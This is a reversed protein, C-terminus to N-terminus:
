LAKQKMYIHYNGAGRNDAYVKDNKYSLLPTSTTPSTALVAASNCQLEAAIVLYKKGRRSIILVRCVGDGSLVDYFLHDPAITRSASEPKPQFPVPLEGSKHGTQLSSSLLAAAAFFYNKREDRRARLKLRSM